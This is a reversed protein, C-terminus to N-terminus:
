RAGSKTRQGVTGGTADDVFQNTPRFEVSVMLDALYQDTVLVSGTSEFPRGSLGDVHNSRIHLPAAGGWIVKLGASPCRGRPILLVSILCTFVASGPAVVACRFLYGITFAVLGPGGPRHLFFPILPGHGDDSCLIGHSRSAGSDLAGGAGTEFPDVGDGGGAWFCGRGALDHQPRVVVPCGATAFSCPSLPSSCGHFDVSAPYPNGRLYM